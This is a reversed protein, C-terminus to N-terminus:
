VGSLVGIKYRYKISFVLKGFSVGKNICDFTLNYLLSVVTQLFLGDRINADLSEFRVTKINTSGM